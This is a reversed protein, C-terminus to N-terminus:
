KAGAKRLGNLLEAVAAQATPNQYQDESYYKSVTGLDSRAAHAKRFKGLAQKAEADKNSLALAAVLWAHTFWLNPRMDVSEQLAEAASAYDGIAFYARGKVWRFVAFSPDKPSLQAAKEAMAIARKSDGLFVMENAAQAYASAFNPDIRIAEEFARLAAKHDGRLRYVWGLAHHALPVDHDLGVAKKAAAEARNVEATGAGNWGNLVDSTLWAALLGLLRANDPDAQLGAEAHQRLELSKEATPFGTSAAMARMREDLPNHDAALTGVEHRVGSKIVEDNLSTAIRTMMNDQLDLLSGTEYAFTNAWLNTGSETDILQANVQVLPGSRRVSGELAYRVRLERGIQRPDNPKDKYTFATGSAIVWARRLRSLETTLDDTIADALYGDATNSDLSKFPLVVISNTRAIAEHQARFLLVSAIAAIAIAAISAAATVGNWRAILWSLYPVRIRQDSVEYVHVPYPINKVRRTGRDAFFFSPQARTQDYISQSVCVMGPSALAELRAAINVSNGYIDDHDVMVDGTNIGIRMQLRDKQDAQRTALGRQIEIACRVADVASSFEVLLGDGMSRVLRGHYKDITPDILERAHTAFREHTEDESRSMMRSYGVVDALMVAMLRRRQETVPEVVTPTTRATLWEIAM